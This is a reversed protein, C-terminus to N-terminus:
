FGVSPSESDAKSPYTCANASVQLNLEIPTDTNGEDGPRTIRLDVVVSSRVESSSTPPTPLSINLRATYVYSRSSVEAEHAASELRLADDIIM